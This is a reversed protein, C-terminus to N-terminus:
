SKIPTLLTAIGIRNWANIATIAMIIDAIKEISFCKTALAYTSQRLGHAAIATIEETMQLLIKEDKSFFPVEEWANLAHLRYQKEGNELAEKVHSQICYACGNIQSARVYILLLETDTLQSEQLLANLDFLPSYYAPKVKYMNIRETNM